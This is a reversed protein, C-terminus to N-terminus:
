KKKSVVINTMKVMSILNGKEDFIEINILHTTRGKHRMKAIGKVYGERKSKIHNASVELGFVNYNEVDEAAISIHSLCSGLSEALAISAGGHLYGMPQHVRPTVPMTAVLYEKGVETFEIQLTEMLTKKSFHNIQKLREKEIENM